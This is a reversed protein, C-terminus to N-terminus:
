TANTEGEKENEKPTITKNKNEKIEIILGTSTKITETENDCCQITGMAIEKIKYNGYSKTIRYPMNEINGAYAKQSKEQKASHILIEIDTTEDTKKLLNKLKM